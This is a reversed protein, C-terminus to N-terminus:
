CRESTLARPEGSVPFPGDGKWGLARTCASLTKAGQSWLHTFRGANCQVDKVTRGSGSKTTVSACAHWDRHSNRWTSWVYVYAWNKNCGKFQKVSAFTKGGV